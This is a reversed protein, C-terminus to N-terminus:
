GWACPAICALVRSPSQGLSALAPAPAPPQEGGEGRGKVGRAPRAIALSQSEASALTDMLPYFGCLTRQM